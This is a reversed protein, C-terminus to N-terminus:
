ELISVTAALIEEPDENGNMCDDYAAQADYLDQLAASLTLQAQYWAGENEATPDQFYADAAAQEEAQRQNYITEATVVESLEQVCDSCVANSPSANGFILGVAIALHFM